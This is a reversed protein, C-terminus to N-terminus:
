LMAFFHLRDFSFYGQQAEVMGRARQQTEVSDAGLRELYLTKEVYSSWWFKAV